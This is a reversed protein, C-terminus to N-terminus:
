KFQCESLLEKLYKGHFVILIKLMLLEPNVPVDTQIMVGISPNNGPLIM